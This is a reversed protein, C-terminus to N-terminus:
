VKSVTVNQNVKETLPVSPVTIILDKVDLVDIVVNKVNKTNNVMMMGNILATVNTQISEEKLVLIVIKQPEQVLKVTILVHYVNAKLKLPELQVIVSHYIEEKKVNPVNMLTVNKVIKLMLIVNKVNKMKTTM